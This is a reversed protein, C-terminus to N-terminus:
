GSLQRTTIARYQEAQSTKGQLVADYGSVAYIKKLAEIKFATFLNNSTIKIGGNNIAAIVGEEGAEIRAAAGDEVYISITASDFSYYELAELEGNRTRIGVVSKGVYANITESGLLLRASKPIKAAVKQYYYEVMKDRSISIEYSFCTSILLLFAFLAFYHKM